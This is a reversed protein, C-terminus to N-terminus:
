LERGAALEDLLKVILRVNQRSSEQVKPLHKKIRRRIEEQNEMFADFSSCLGELSLNSFDAAYEALGFQEMVEQYKHSWGTLLVPVQESLAFVMAHFRCAVLVECQAIRARIEEADMERREWILGEQMGATQRLSGFSGALQKRGSKWGSNEQKWYAAAVADGTMLDNNRPKASHMRAANPFLFVQWGQNTLYRIFGAMIRCYDIGAKRCKKEVVSSVSLAAMRSKGAPGSKKQVRKRVSVDVPMSFAGDACLQVNKCIGAASLHAKTLRGRALILKLGPLVLKALIRNYANHFPGLAQSYKVAPVGLLMPVAMCVFAYTNMVFGRSDSFSIGAEDIVLDTELYTDLIQNKRLLARVPACRGAVRYLVACPFAAFLLKQPQAPVVTVCAHPCQRRDERPYVSMLRIDLREGYAELLQSISSQLMAAAGKNGSYSAATIAITITKNGGSVALDISRIEELVQEKIHIKVSKSSEETMM